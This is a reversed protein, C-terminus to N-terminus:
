PGSRYDTVAPYVAQIEALRDEADSCMLVGEFVASTAYNVIDNALAPDLYAPDCDFLVSAFAAGCIGVEQAIQLIDQGDENKLECIDSFVLHGTNEIGVLHKSGQTSEYASATSSYDVVTDSQAGLFLVREVTGSTGPDVPNGSAMPVVVRVGPKEGFGAVASGGASHGIVAVRDLDLHPQAFDLGDAGAALASLVADTDASLDQSGTPQDPCALALLDGLFLGPHDVGIVVFGRSAWHEAQTLSVTAWAATGHVYVVVPYPGHGEDIPLGDECDCGQIPTKDDPILGQQSEPLKIRPDYAKPNEVVFEPAAPYWIEAVRGAITLTRAGVEFPGRAALDDPRELLVADGCGAVEAPADGDGDGDGDGADDSTSSSTTDAATTGMEDGETESSAGCAIVWPTVLSALTFLSVRSM